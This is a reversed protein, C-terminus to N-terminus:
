AIKVERPLPVRSRIHRRFTWVQKIDELKIPVQPYTENDSILHWEQQNKQLVRKVLLQENTLIIYVSLDKIDNWDEHPLMSALIIDGAFFTPEMSDGDVEFYSWMAGAPNVGPPLADKELSEIYDM